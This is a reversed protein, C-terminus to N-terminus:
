NNWEFRSSQRETGNELSRNRERDNLDDNIGHKEM